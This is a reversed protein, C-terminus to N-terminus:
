VKWIAVGVFACNCSRVGRKVIIVKIALVHSFHVEDWTPHLSLM